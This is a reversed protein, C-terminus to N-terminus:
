WAAGPDAFLRDLADIVVAPPRDHFVGRPAHGLPDLPEALMGRIFLYFSGGVTGELTYADGLRHRLFRHVALTYLLYQLHYHHHEMEVQMGPPTFRAPPYRRTRQPDLRNSKYDVVFFQGTGPHRFVLDIFGTMFGALRLQGFPLGRLLDLYEPRIGPSPAATLADALAEAEITPAGPSWDRGGALPLDFRLEDFRDGPSLDCLRLAGAAHGLPTQLSLRLGRVVAPTLHESPSFGHRALVGHLCGRIAADAEEVGHSPHALRFDFVEFFAHLCTGAEAGAPFAALPVDAVVDSGEDPQVPDASRDRADADLGPQDPPPEAPDSSTLAAAGRTLSSYSHLAWLRDVGGRRFDRPALPASPAPPPEWCVPTPIPGVDVWAVAGDSCAALDAVDGRKLAAPADRVRAAARSARDGGEGDGHLLAAMPSDHSDGRKSSLDGWWVVLRHRARTLAVYLLRMSEERREGEVRSKAPDGAPVKLRLDLHREAPDDEGPVVLKGREMAKILAGDWLYPALVIPFELGKSAHVTLIRVARADTELRAEAAEGADSPSQRHEHLWGLLGSLGLGSEAEAAHALEALHLLDTMRREGDPLRLLRSRADLDDLSRRFARMFGRRALTQRWADLRGVFAAWSASDAEALEIATMGVLDTAALARAVGDHGSRALAELWRQLELAADSTFVSTTKSIVAPVQAARLADRTAAAEAHKSVLVAVDGPHVARWSAAEADWLEVGSSLTEVVVRAVDRPLLARAEGKGLPKDDGAGRLEGRLAGGFFRLEVPAGAGRIRALPERAPTDVRVYDISGGDGPGAGGFLGPRDMLHNLGDILGQDSRFNRTMTFAHDAAQRARLYVHVNAGRFAYIAQKPDGILYLRHTNEEDPRPTFVTQFIEWQVADTDQFEDILGVTYRGRIAARLVPGRREDTLAQALDGMLDGFGQEFREALRQRLRARVTRAFGAREGVVVRQGLDALAALGTVFPHALLESVDGKAKDSLKDPSFYVVWSADLSGPPPDSRLYELAARWHTATRTTQYSRRDLHNAVRAAEFHACPDGSESGALRLLAAVAARWTALDAPDASPLAVQADRAAEGALARAGAPDLGCAVRAQEFWADNAAGGSGYRERTLWDFAIEDLLADLAPVLDLDFSAGSEFANLQLMRQCFGHITSISARDFDERAVDLRRLWLDRDDPSAKAAWDALLTDEVEGGRLAGAAQSVRERLRERLEATALRTFTVVLVSEVPVGQEAVLRVLLHAISYTKGTGASAELVTVGPPLPGALDFTPLDSM